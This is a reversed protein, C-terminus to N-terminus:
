VEDPFYGGEFSFSVLSTVRRRTLCYRDLCILCDELKDWVRNQFSKGVSRMKLFKM